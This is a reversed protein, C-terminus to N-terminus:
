WGVAVKLCGHDLVLMGEIHGRYWPFPHALQARLMGVVTTTLSSLWSKLPGTWGALM